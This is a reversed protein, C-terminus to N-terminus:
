EESGSMWGFAMWMWGALFGLVVGVPLVGMMKHGFNDGLTGTALLALPVGVYFVVLGVVVALAARSWRAKITCRAIALLCGIMVSIMQGLVGGLFLFAAGLFLNNIM